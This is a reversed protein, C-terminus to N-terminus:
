CDQSGVDQLMVTTSLYEVCERAVRNAISM